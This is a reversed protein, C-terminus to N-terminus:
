LLDRDKPIKIAKKLGFNISTETLKKSSITLNIVTINLQIKLLLSLIFIGDLLFNILLSPRPSAEIGKKLKFRPIIHPLFM